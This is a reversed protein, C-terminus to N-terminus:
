KPARRPAKAPERSIVRVKWSRRKMGLRDVVDRGLAARAATLDVKVCRAFKPGAVRRLAAVDVDITDSPIMEAEYKKGQGTKGPRKKLADAVAQTLSGEQFKLLHLRDRLVGLADIQTALGKPTM